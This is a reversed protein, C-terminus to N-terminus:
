VKVSSARFSSAVPNIYTSYMLVLVIFLCILGLFTVGIDSFFVSPTLSGEVAVSSTTVSGVLTILCVLSYAILAISHMISQYYKINPSVACIYRIIVIMAGVYVLTVLLAILGPVLNYAVLFTVLLVVYLVLCATYVLTSPFLTILIFGLIMIFVVKSRIIVTFM